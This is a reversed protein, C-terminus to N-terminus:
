RLTACKVTNLNLKQWKSQPESTDIKWLLSRLLFDKSNNIKSKSKSNKDNKKTTECVKSQTTWSKSWLTNWAPRGSSTLPWAPTLALQAVVACNYLMTQLPCARYVMASGHCIEMSHKEYTESWYKCHFVNFVFVCVTKFFCTLQTLSYPWFWCLSASGTVNDFQVFCQSPQCYHTNKERSIKMIWEIRTGWYEISSNKIVGCGSILRANDIWHKRKLTRHTWNAFDKFCM